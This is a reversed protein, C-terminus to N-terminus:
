YLKAKIIILLISTFPGKCDSCVLCESHYKKDKLEVYNSIIAKNCVECKPSFKEHYHTM